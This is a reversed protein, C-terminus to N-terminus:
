ASSMVLSFFFENEAQDDALLCRREKARRLSAFGGALVQSNIIGLNALFWCAFTCEVASIEGVGEM